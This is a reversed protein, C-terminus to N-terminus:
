RPEGVINKLCEARTKELVGKRREIENKWGCEQMAYWAEDTMGPKVRAAEWANCCAEGPSLGSSMWSCGFMPATKPDRVVKIAVLARDYANQADEVCAALRKADREGLPPGADTTAQPLPDAPPTPAPEPALAKLRAACDRASSLGKTAADLKPAAEAVFAALEVALADLTTLTDCDALVRQTLGTLRAAEDRRVQAEDDALRVGDEYSRLAEQRITLLDRKAIEVNANDVLVPAGLEPTRDMLAIEEDVRAATADAAEDFAALDRALAARQQDLRFALLVLTDATHQLLGALDRLERRRERALTRASAYSAVLDPITETERKLDALRRQALTLRADLSKVRGDAEAARAELTPSPIPESRHAGITAEAAQCAAAGESAVVNLALLIEAPTPRHKLGALRADIEACVQPIRADARDVRQRETAALAALQRGRAALDRLNKLTEDAARRTETIRGALSLAVGAAQQRAMVIEAVLRAAELEGRRQQSVEWLRLLYQQMTERLKDQPLGAPWPLRRNALFRAIAREAEGRTKALDAFNGPTISKGGITERAFFSDDGYEGTVPNMTLDGAFKALRYDMRVQDLVMQRVADMNAVPKREATSTDYQSQYLNHVAAGETDFWKAADAVAEEESSYARALADRTLSKAGLFGGASDYALRGAFAKLDWFVFYNLGLTGVDQVLRLAGYAPSAVMLALDGAATVGAAIGKQQAESVVHYVSLAVGLGIATGAVPHERLYALLQRADGGVRVLLGQGGATGQLERVSSLFRQQLEAPLSRALAELTSGAAAADLRGARAALTRAEAELQLRRADAIADAAIASDSALAVAEGAPMTAYAYSLERQAAAALEANPGGKALGDAILELHRAHLAGTLRANMAECEALFRRAALEVEAASADAGLRGGLGQRVSKADAIRRAEAVLRQEEASLAIGGYERASDAIRKYYKADHVAQEAPSLGTLRAGFLMKQEAAHIGFADLAQPKPPPALNRTAYDDKVSVYRVRGGEEPVLRFGKDWHDYELARVRAPTAYKERNSLAEVLSERSGTETATLFNTGYAEPAIGLERELAGNLTEIAAEVGPGNFVFDRDSIMTVYRSSGTTRTNLSGIVDVWQVAGPREAMVRNIADLTKASLADDFVDLATGLRADVTGRVALDKVEGYRRCLARFASEEGEMSKILLDGIAPGAGLPTQALATAGGVALAVVLVVRAWAYRKRSM